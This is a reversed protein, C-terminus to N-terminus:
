TLAHAPRHWGATTPVKFLRHVAYLKAVPFRAYGAGRCRIKHRKRLHTRLREEVHWKVKAMAKSSNRKAADRSAAKDPTTLLVAIEGDEVSQNCSCLLAGERPWRTISDRLRM